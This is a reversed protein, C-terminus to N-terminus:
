EGILHWVGGTADYMMKIYGDAALTTPAGAVNPISITTLTETTTILVVQQDVPTGSPAVGSPMNITGGQHTADPDFIMWTDNSSTIYTVFGLGGVTVQRQVSPYKAPVVTFTLNDQMWETLVTLSAKRSDGNSADYLPFNDGAQLSSVASLDNIGIM